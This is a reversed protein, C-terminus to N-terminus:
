RKQKRGTKLHKGPCKGEPVVNEGPKVALVLINQYMVLSKDLSNGEFRSMGCAM